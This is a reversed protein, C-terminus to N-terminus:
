QNGEILRKLDTRNRTSYGPDTPKVNTPPAQNLQQLIRGSREISEIGSRSRELAVGFKTRIDEPLFDRVFLATIEIFPRSRSGRLWDPQDNPATKDTLFLFATAIILGTSVLGAALGLSRDLVNLRSHRVWGSFLHSVIHFFVLAVLFLASGAILDAAVPTIHQRALPQVLPLGYLTVLIAGVWSAVFLGGRVFGTTLGILGGLVLVGIVAIDFVSIDLGEIM